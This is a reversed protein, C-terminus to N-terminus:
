FAVGAEFSLTWQRKGVLFPNEDGPENLDFAFQSGLTILEYRYNLGLIGRPAPARQPRM